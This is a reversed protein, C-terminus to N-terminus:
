INKRHISYDNNEMLMRICQNQYNVSFMNKLRIPIKKTVKRENYSLNIVLAVGELAIFM